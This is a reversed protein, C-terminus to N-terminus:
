GGPTEVGPCLLDSPELSVHFGWESNQSWKRGVSDSKRWETRSRLQTEGAETMAVDTMEHLYLWGYVERNM